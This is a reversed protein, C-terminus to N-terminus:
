ATLFGNSGLDTTTHGTRSCTAGWANGAMWGNSGLDTTTYGRGTVCCESMGM